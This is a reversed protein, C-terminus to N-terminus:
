AFMEKVKYIGNVLLDVEDTTNYLYFSARATSTINFKDHLPMACHHGARVAIGDMDLVQSIDHAHLDDVLFAAVGGKHNAEPGFIRVGPIEELRELAYAIIQQEHAEIAEMGVQSLYDVAAGFGVAEAIAPTGAEFKHPISNTQFSRLEVRKIMDGGGLFPPMAELLEKKGYLAGIGTPGLMKHASFAMFDADLDQVDVPLHPVSQASDVLTVAGVEHALAIIEKAPTITGLVNSMHAFAVVKPEMTLLNRYVALDLLGDETVPIFELRLDKEMALIQWPILNSHHEMETLVIVDGPHLNARGWSQAVLNISETTNRTFILQRASPANIFKAVKIRAGEYAATAEEALVHIGRHINANSFYTLHDMAEVVQRPRQSTATSDLYVLPVGPRVERVLIPFDDRIKAVDFKAAAPASQVPLHPNNM